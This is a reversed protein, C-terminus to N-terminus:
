SLILKVKDGDHNSIYRQIAQIAGNFYVLDTDNLYTDVELSIVSSIVEIFNSYGTLREDKGFCPEKTHSCSSKKILKLLKRNEANIEVESIQLDKVSIPQSEEM